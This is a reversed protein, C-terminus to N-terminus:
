VKALYAAEVALYDLVDVVLPLAGDAVVRVLALHGYRAAGASVKAFVEPIHTLGLFDFSAYQM